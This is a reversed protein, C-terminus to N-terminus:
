KSLSTFFHIFTHFLVALRVYRWRSALSSKVFSSCFTSLELIHFTSPLMLQMWDTCYINFFVYPVNCTISLSILGRKDSFTLMQLKYFFNNWRYSTIHFLRGTSIHVEVTDMSVNACLSLLWRKPQSCRQPSQRVPVIYIYMCIWETM